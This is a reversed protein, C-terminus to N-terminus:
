GLRYSHSVTGRETTTTRAPTVSQPNISQINNVWGPLKTGVWAFLLKGTPLAVTDNIPHILIGQTEPLNFMISALLQYSDSVIVTVPQQEAKINTIFQKIPISAFSPTRGIWICLLGAQVTLCLGIYRKAYSISYTKSNVMSILWLPSLFLLPLVWHAKVDHIGASVIFILLFPLVILHYRWLLQNPQSLTANARSLPFFFKILILPLAFYLTAEILHVIGDWQGKGPMSLKYSTYLGVKPHNILWLFYAGSLLLAIVVTLIILPNFIKDRYKKISLATIILVALFLVYNFKSLLGVGFIVGLVAYWIFKPLQSPKILWYWTLCAALLALIVHTKHPLFDYSIPPILAWSLTACWVLLSNKCHLRCILYYVYIAAFLLSYKLLAASFLNVGFCKLTIYQLWTYLPPQSPYGASFHQAYILQEAEDYGLAGNCLFLRAFLLFGAFLLFFIFPLQHSNFNFTTKQMFLVEFQSLAPLKLILVIVCPWSILLRTLWSSSLM